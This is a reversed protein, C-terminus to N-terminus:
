NERQELEQEQVEPVHSPRGRDKAVLDLRV